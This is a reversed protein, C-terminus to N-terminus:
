SILRNARWARSQSVTYIDGHLLSCKGNMNNSELTVGITKFKDVLMQFTWYGEIIDTRGQTGNVRDNCDKFVINYNWFM